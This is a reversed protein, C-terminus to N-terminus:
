LRGSNKNSLRLHFNVRNVLNQPTVEPLAVPVQTFDLLPPPDVWIIGDHLVDSDEESSIKRAQGTAAKRAAEGAAHKNRHGHHSKYNVRASSNAATLPKEHTGMGLMGSGSGGGISQCVQLGQLCSTNGAKILVAGLVQDIM